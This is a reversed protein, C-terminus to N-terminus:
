EEENNLFSFLKILASCKKVKELAMKFLYEDYDM